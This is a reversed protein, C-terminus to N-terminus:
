VENIERTWTLDSSFYVGLDKKKTYEKEIIVEGTPDKYSNKEIGLNIGIRHHIFKEGNLCM